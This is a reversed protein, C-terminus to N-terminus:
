AATVTLTEVDDPGTESARIRPGSGGRRHVNTVQGRAEPDLVQSFNRVGWTALNIAANLDRDVIHGCSECVFVRDALTLTQNVNTCASCTKSSPFWRDATLVTGGRWAQKYLLQRALEGWAADSIAAALRHNALMGTINLDEIVLRDHTKVLLNSVQHLFYHRRARVREHHRALRAVASRRNASGMVKRSVSKQMRRTVARSTSLAKPAEDIRLTKTGDALAVVVPAHLGRDVGAWGGRDADARPEHRGAPHLDAAETTLSIRWRGGRRSVTAFLIRARGTALLRRLRRTDDHVKIAGIGPLTVSRPGNEGLRITPRVGTKTKSTKNRMRFSGREPNKKKFRPHGISRGARRGRRSDTWARLANGLDVVAEEFVQASVQSRWALGTVELEVTGDTGVVFRRGADETKKWANLANILDFGTWPVKVADIDEVDDRKATRRADLHLRLGQNFAFRAAGEHRTLARAQEATPAAM